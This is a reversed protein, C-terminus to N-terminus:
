GLKKFVNLEIDDASSDQHTFDIIFQTFENKVSRVKLKGDLEKVQQWVLALGVGRGALDDVNGRTSLADKFAYRLLGSNGLSKAESETM